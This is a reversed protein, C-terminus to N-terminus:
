KLCPCEAVQLEAVQLRCSQLGDWKTRWGAIGLNSGKEQRGGIIKARGFSIALM